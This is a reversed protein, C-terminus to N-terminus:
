WLCILAIFISCIGFIGLRVFRATWSSRPIFISRRTKYGYWEANMCHNWQQQGLILMLWSWAMFLIVSYSTQFLGIMILGALWTSLLILSRVADTTQIQQKEEHITDLVTPEQGLRILFFLVAALILGFASPPFIWLGRTMWLIVFLAAYYLLLSFTRFRRFYLACGAALSVAASIIYISEHATLGPVCCIWWLGVALFVRVLNRSVARTM